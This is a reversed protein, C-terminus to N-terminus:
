GNTIQFGLASAFTVGAIGLLVRIPKKLNLTKCYDYVELGKWIAILLWAPTTVIFFEKLPPVKKAPPPSYQCKEQKWQCQVAASRCSQESKLNSCAAHLRRVYDEYEAVAVAQQWMFAVPDHGNAQSWQAILATLLFSTILKRM